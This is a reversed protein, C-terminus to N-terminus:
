MVQERLLEQERPVPFTLESSLRISFVPISYSGQFCRLTLTHVSVLLHVSPLMLEWQSFSNQSPAPQQQLGMEKRIDQLQLM